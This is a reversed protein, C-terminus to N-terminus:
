HEPKKLEGWLTTLKEHPSVSLSGETWDPWTEDSPERTLRRLGATEFTYRYLNYNSTSKDLFKLSFLIAHDKEMWSAGAILFNNGLRDNIDTIEQKGGGIRQVILHRVDGDRFWKSEYFLIRQGDDSWRPFYRFTPPGNRPPDRLVPRQNQGDASMVYITKPSIGNEIDIFREFVIQTGDPSWDPSGSGGGGELGTLQTVTGTAVEIVFVEWSETRTSSFVLYDGDPSWSSDTDLVNNYTLRQPDTGDANMVFVEATTQSKTKDLYRTFAIRKGDPSWRPYGHTAQTSHTLKRRRSGDDNMVFIDGDVCFVIKADAPLTAGAFLLLCFTFFVIRIYSLFPTKLRNM